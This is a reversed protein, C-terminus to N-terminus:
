LEGGDSDPEDVLRSTCLGQSSTQAAPKKVASEYEWLAPAIDHEAKQIRRGAQRLLDCIEFTTPDDLVDTTLSWARHILTQRMLHLETQMRQLDALTM